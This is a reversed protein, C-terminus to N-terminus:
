VLVVSNHSGFTNPCAAASPDSVWEGDAVYRYEYRGPALALTTEWTKGRKEMAKLSWESFDGAIKVSEAHPAEITFNVEIVKAKSASIATQGSRSDAAAATIETDVIQRRDPKRLREVGKNLPAKQKKLTKGAQTNQTKM